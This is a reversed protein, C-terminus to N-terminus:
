GLYQQRKKAGNPKSWGQQMRKVIPTLEQKIRPWERMAENIFEAYAKEDNELEALLLTRDLRMLHRLADGVKDYDAESLFEAEQMTLISADPQITTELIKKFMDLREFVKKAVEKLLHKCEPDITDVEFDHNLEDYEPLKYQRAAPAYLEAITKKEDKKQGDDKSEKREMTKLPPWANIFAEKATGWSANEM